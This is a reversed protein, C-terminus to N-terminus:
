FPIPDDGNLPAPSPPRPPDMLEPEGPKVERYYWGNEDNVLRHKMRDLVTSSFYEARYGLVIRDGYGNQGYVTHRERWRKRWVEYLGSTHSPVSESNLIAQRDQWDELLHEDKAIDRDDPRYFSNLKEERTAKRAAENKREREEEIQMVVFGITNKIEELDKVTVTDGPGKDKLLRTLMEDARICAYLGPNKKAHEDFRRCSFEDNPLVGVGHYPCWHATDVDSILWGRGGCECIDPDPHQWVGSAAVDHIEQLGM